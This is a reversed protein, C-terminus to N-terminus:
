ENYIEIYSIKVEFSVKNHSKNHQNLKNLNEIDKIKDFLDQMSLILV